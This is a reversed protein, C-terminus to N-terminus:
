TFHIAHQYLKNQPWQIIIMSPGTYGLYNHISLLCKSGNKNYNIVEKQKKGKIIKNLEELSQKIITKSFGNKEHIKCFKCAIINFLEFIAKRYRDLMYDLLEEEKETCNVDSDEDSGTDFKSRKWSPGAKNGQNLKRKSLLICFVILCYM